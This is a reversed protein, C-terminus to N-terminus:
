IVIKKEQRDINGDNLPMLAALDETNEHCKRKQKRANKVRYNEKYKEDLCNRITRESVKKGRLQHVIENCIGNMPIKGELDKALDRVIQRKEKEAEADVKDLKDIAAQFCLSIEEQNSETKSITM